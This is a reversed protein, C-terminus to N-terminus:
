YKIEWEPITSYVRRPLTWVKNPHLEVVNFMYIEGKFTSRKFGYIHEAKEWIKSNAKDLKGDVAYQDIFTSSVAVLGTHLMDLDPIFVFACITKDNRSAVAELFKDAIERNKKRLIKVQSRNFNDVNRKLEWRLNRGFKKVEYLANM